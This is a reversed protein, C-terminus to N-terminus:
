ATGDASALADQILTTRRVAPHLDTWPEGNRYELVLLKLPLGSCEPRNQLRQTRTIEVLYPIEEDEIARQYSNVLDQISLDVARRTIKAGDPTYSCADRLLIMLDRLHGGSVRCLDRVDGPTEFVAGLDIRRGVAEVMADLAGDCDAEPAGREHVKVMPLLEPRTGWVNAVNENSLLSIPITYVMSCVPAMLHEAHDIFLERHSTRGDADDSSTLIVRDLSDVIIVLGASGADRLRVQLDHILLNLDFLFLGIDADIEYQLSKREKSGGSMRLSLRSLMEFLGPIGPKFTVASEAAGEVQKTREHEVVVGALRRYLADVAEQQIAGEVETGQIAGVLQYMLKVLVDTYNVGSMDAMEAAFDFYVVFFGDAELKAALRRLETSKGCGKHGTFLVKAHEPPVARSPRAILNALRDAIPMPSRWETFDMYRPDDSGLARNPNVANTADTVNQAPAFPTDGTM